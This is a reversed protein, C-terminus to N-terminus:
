CEGWWQRGAVSAEAQDWQAGSEWLVGTMVALLLWSQTHMQAHTNGHSLSVSYIQEKRRSLKTGKLFSSLSIIKCAVNDNSTETTM